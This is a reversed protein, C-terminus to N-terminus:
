PGSRGDYHSKITEIAETLSCHVSQHHRSAPLDVTEKDDSLFIMGCGAAAAAQCDRIDDGVYLVQDLRFRYEDSALYFM